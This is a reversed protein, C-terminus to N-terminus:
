ITAQNRRVRASKINTALTSGAGKVRGSKWRRAANIVSRFQM